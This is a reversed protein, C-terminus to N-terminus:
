LRGSLAAEIDPATFVTLQGREAIRVKSDPEVHQAVSSFFLELSALEATDPGPKSRFDSARILLDFLSPTLLLSHADGDPSKAVLVVDIDDTDLSDTPDLQRRRLHVDEVPISGVVVLPPAPLLSGLDRAATVGPDPLHMEGAVADMGSGLFNLGKVLRNRLRMPEEQRSVQEVAAVLLGFSKIHSLRGLAAGVATDAEFYVRRRWLQLYGPKGPSDLMANLAEAVRDQDPDITILEGVDAFTRVQNGIQVQSHTDVLSGAEPEAARRVDEPTAASRAERLWADVQLDAAEGLGLAALARLVPLAEIKDAPLAGGLVLHFYAEAATFGSSGHRDYRDIVDHCTKGGTIGYALVSLMDRLPAIEEAAALRMAQRLAERPRDTRLVEANRRMPCHEFAPCGRCAEWKPEAVAYNLLRPWMDLGTWKQRNMNIALIRDDETRGDTGLLSQSIPAALCTDGEVLPRLVGENACLLMVSQEGNAIARAADMVAQRRGAGVASLDKCVLVRGDPGLRKLGDDEPPEVDLAACFVEALATKGTGANGTLILVGAHRGRTWTDVTAEARTEIDAGLTQRARRSFERYAAGQHAGLVSLSNLADVTPNLHQVGPSV